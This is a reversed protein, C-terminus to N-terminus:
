VGYIPTDRGDHYTYYNGLYYNRPDHEKVMFVTAIRDVWIQPIDSLIYFIYINLNEQFSCHINPKAKTKSDNASASKEM